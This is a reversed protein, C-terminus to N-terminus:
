IFIISNKLHLQLYRIVELSSQESITTGLRNIRIFGGERWIIFGDQVSGGLVIM